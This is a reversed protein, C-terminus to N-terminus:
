IYPLSLAAGQLIVGGHGFEKATTWTIALVQDATSARYSLVYVGPAYDLQSQLSTDEYLPSSGDSLTATLRGQARWVGLYLTISRITTDARAVIQFGNRAGGVYVGAGASTGQADPAGNSWSLM